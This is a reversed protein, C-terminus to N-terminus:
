GSSEWPEYHFNLWAWAGAQDGARFQLAWLNNFAQRTDETLTGTAADHSALVLSNLIAETGRSESTKPLGRSQDPYFPEVEKWLRVRKVVNDLLKREPAPLDAEGLEARLAPRARAYWAPSSAFGRQPGMALLSAALGISCTVIAATWAKM